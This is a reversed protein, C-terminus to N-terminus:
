SSATMSIVFRLIRQRNTVGIGLGLVIAAVITFSRDRNLLRSAFRVDRCLDQVWPWIWVDRARDRALPANGFARRAAFAAETPELGGGELERRTMERHFAMEEALDAEHRGYRVTYWARRLLQRM